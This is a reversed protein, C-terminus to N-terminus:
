ISNGSQPLIDLKRKRLCISDAVGVYRCFAVTKIIERVLSQHPAGNTRTSIFGKVPNEIHQQRLEIHRRSSINAECVLTVTSLAVATDAQLGGYGSKEKCTPPAFFFAILFSVGYLLTEDGAPSSSPQSGEVECAKQFFAQDFVKLVSRPLRRKPKSVARSFIWM